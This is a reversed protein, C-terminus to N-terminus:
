KKHREKWWLDTEMRAAWRKVIDEPVDFIDMELDYALKGDMVMDEVAQRVMKAFLPGKFMEALMMARDRTREDAGPPIRVEIREKHDDQGETMNNSM